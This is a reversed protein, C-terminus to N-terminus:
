VLSPRRIHHSVSTHSWSKLPYTPVVTQPAGPKAAVPVMPLGAFKTMDFTTALRRIAKKIAKPRGEEPLMDVKNLVVLMRSTAIEAVM